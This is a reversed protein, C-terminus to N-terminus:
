IGGTAPLCIQKSPKLEQVFVQANRPTENQECINQLDKLVSKM